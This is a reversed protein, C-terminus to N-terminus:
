GELLKEITPQSSSIEILDFMRVLDSFPVEEKLYIELHHFTDDQNLITYKITLFYDKIGKTLKRRHDLEFKSTGFESERLYDKLNSVLAESDETSFKQFLSTNLKIM